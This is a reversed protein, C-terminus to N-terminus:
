TWPAPNESGGQAGRPSEEPNPCRGLPSRRPAHLDLARLHHLCPLQHRCYFGSSPTFMHPQQKPNIAEKRAATYACSGSCHQKTVLLRPPLALLPFLFFLLFGLMACMLPKKHVTNRTSASVFLHFNPDLHFHGAGWPTKAINM